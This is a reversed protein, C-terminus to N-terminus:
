SQEKIIKIMEEESMSKNIGFAIYNGIFFYAGNEYEYVKEYADDFRYRDAM